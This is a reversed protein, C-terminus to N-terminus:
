QPNKQCAVIFKPTFKYKNTIKHKYVDVTFCGNADTIGSFRADQLTLSSLKTQLKFQQPLYKIFIQKNKKKLCNNFYQQYQKLRTPM